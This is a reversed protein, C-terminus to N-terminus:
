RPSIQLRKVLYDGLAAQMPKDTVMRVYEVRGVDCGKEMAKLYEQVARLYAPIAATDTAQVMVPLVRGAPSRWKEEAFRLETMTYRGKSM